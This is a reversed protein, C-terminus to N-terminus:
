AGLMRTHDCRVSLLVACLHGPARQSHLLSLTSRLSSLLKLLMDKIISLQM